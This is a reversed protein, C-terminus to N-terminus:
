APDIRFVGDTQSVVYLEGDSDEGFSAIGAARIGLDREAVVRGGEVRIARIAPNCNDTFLYSGVLDPIRSGRYV